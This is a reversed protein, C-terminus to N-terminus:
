RFLSNAANMCAFRSLQNTVTGNVQSSYMAGVGDAVLVLVVM